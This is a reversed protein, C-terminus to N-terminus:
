AGEPLTRSRPRRRNASSLCHSASINPAYNTGCPAVAGVATRQAAKQEDSLFPNPSVRHDDARRVWEVDARGLETRRACGHGATKSSPLRPWRASADCNRSPARTRGLASSFALARSGRDFLRRSLRRRKRLACKLSRARYAHALSLVSGITNFCTQCRPACRRKPPRLYSLVRHTGDLQAINQQLLKRPDNGDYPAGQSRTALVTLCPQLQTILAGRM